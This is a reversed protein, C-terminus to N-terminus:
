LNSLQNRIQNSQLLITFVWYFLATSDGCLVYFPSFMCLGVVQLSRVKHCIGCSSLPWVDIIVAERLFRTNFLRRADLIVNHLTVM